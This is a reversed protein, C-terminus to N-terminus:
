CWLGGHVNLVSGTIYNAEDSVLFLVANAIDEPKGLRGLPVQRPMDKKMEETYEDTQIFGPNIVNVRIGNKAEEKALSKSFVVVGTKATAYACNKLYGQTREANPAGINIINGSKQKRMIPVVAKCCYFTSNLNSNIIQHWEQITTDYISKYLFPGVNNVLIDIRGFESMVKKLMEDVDAFNSVDCQISIAKRGGGEAPNEIMKKISEVVEEAAGSNSKYNIVLSAGAEALKLAITKGIGRSSGTVLAVKNELSMM